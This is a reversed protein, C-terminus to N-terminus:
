GQQGLGGPFSRLVPTSVRVLVRPFTSCSSCRLVGLRHQEWRDPRAPNDVEARDRCRRRRRRTVACAEQPAKTGVSAARGNRGGKLGLLAALAAPLVATPSVGCRRRESLTALAGGCAAHSRPHFRGRGQKQRSGGFQFEWWGRREAFPEYPRKHGPLPPRPKVFARLGDPPPPRPKVPAVLLGALPPRPQVSVWHGVLTVARGGGCRPWLRM